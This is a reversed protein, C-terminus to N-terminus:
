WKEPLLTDAEFLSFGFVYIPAAITEFFIVGLIVNPVCPKYHVKSSKVDNETFLGYPKYDVGSLNKTKACGIFLLSVIVLISLFSKM